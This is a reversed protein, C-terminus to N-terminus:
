LLIMRSAAESFLVAPTRRLVNEVNGPVAPDGSRTEKRWAVRLSVRGPTLNTPALHARDLQDFPAFCIFATTICSYPPGSTKFYSSTGSGTGPLPSTRMRIAAALILGTSRQCRAPVVFADKRTSNGAMM